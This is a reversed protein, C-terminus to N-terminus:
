ALLRRGRVALVAAPLEPQAPRALAAVGAEVQRVVGEPQEAVVPLGGGDDGRAPQDHHPQPQRRRPEAILRLLHHLRQRPEIAARRRLLGSRRGPSGTYCCTVWHSAVTRPPRANG